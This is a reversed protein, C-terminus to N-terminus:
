STTFLSLRRNGSVSRAVTNCDNIDSGSSSRRTFWSLKRLVSQSKTEEPAKGEDKDDKHLIADAASKFVEKVNWRTKACCEVYDRAMISQAVSVAQMRSISDSEEPGQGPVTLYFQLASDTRLDNKCGILLYPVGPCAHSVEPVWKNVVSQLSPPHGIDFCILIVDSDRYMERRISEYDELGSIEWLMVELRSEETIIDTVCEDFICSEEADFDSKVLANLLSTKGCESDGVVSLKYRETAQGSYELSREGNSNVVLKNGGHESKFSVAPLSVARKKRNRHLKMENILRRRLFIKLATQLYM